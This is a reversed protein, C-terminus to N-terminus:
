RTVERTVNGVVEFLRTVVGTDSIIEMHGVVRGVPLIATVDDGLAMAVTGLADGLTIGGGGTTMEVLADSSSKQRRLDMRATYSTIDVPTTKAEDQYWTITKSWDAGQPIEWRFVPVRAM